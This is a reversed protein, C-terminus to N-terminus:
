NYITYSLENLRNFRKQKRETQLTGEFSNSKSILPKPRNSLQDISLRDEM